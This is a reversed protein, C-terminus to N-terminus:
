TPQTTAKNLLAEAENAWETFQQALVRLGQPTTGFRLTDTVRFKEVDGNDDPGYQPESVVVIVEITPILKGDDNATFSINKATGYVEKM